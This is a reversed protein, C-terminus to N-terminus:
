DIPSIPSMARLRHAVKPLTELVYDIDEDTTDDGLTMRVSGHAVEHTLGLALLVHSPDLSGSTCASGSSAAIGAMDLMLLISEGEIYKISFNVNNPLRKTRHGNLKVEPITAEIGEILRDRMRTMRASTESMNTVALELAEGLGVIGAVNETGARRGKEQEGGIIYSPLRIGKREYLVGVGKPGHFKHGSISLMDIGMAKVDIPIHGAAQVADTHFLVGKEHCVAAIEPIPMITGVENNAFMVSVLITKDTIADRVQEPTVLGDKDVPLYTVKIGKKELAACSHLIAHHEVNTTIIHDGKKAYREAVGFLVTNDSETGCGTFVIESPDANIARAVQERAHEVGIRATQGFSHPSSANGYIDTLYPMMKELVKPSLATTAANDLYVKRM